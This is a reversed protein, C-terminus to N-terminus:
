TGGVLQCPVRNVAEVLVLEHYVVALHVILSYTWSPTTLMLTLHEMAAGQISARGERFENTVDYNVSPYSSNRLRVRNPEYEGSHEM